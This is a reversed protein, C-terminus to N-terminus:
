KEELEGRYGDIGGISHVNEYGMVTLLAEAQWSRMGAYCYLFLPTDYDALEALDERLTNLSLNVAGPVFGAEYDEPDRLDILLAGPTQRFLALGESFESM